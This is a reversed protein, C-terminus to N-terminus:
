QARDFVVIGLRVDDINIDLQDLNQGPQTFNEVNFMSVVPREHLDTTYRDLWEQFVDLEDQHDAIFSNRFTFSPSQKDSQEEFGALRPRKFHLKDDAPGLREVLGEGSHFLMPNQLSEDGFNRSYCACRQYIADFLEPISVSKELSGLTERIALGFISMKEPTCNFSIENPGHSLIVWLGADASIGEVIESLRDQFPNQTRNPNNPCWTFQGADLFVVKQKGPSSAFSELAETVDYTVPQENLQNSYIWVVKGDALKIHGSIYLLSIAQDDIDRTAEQSMGVKENLGKISEVRSVSVNEFESFASRLRTCTSDQFPIAHRRTQIEKGNDYYNGTQIKQILVHIKTEGPPFASIIFLVALGVAIAAFLLAFLNRLRRNGAQEEHARQRRSVRSM